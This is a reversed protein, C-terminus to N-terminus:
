SFQPRELLHLQRPLVQLRTNALRQTALSPIRPLLGVCGPIRPWVLFRLVALGALVLVVVLVVLLLAVLVVLLWSM